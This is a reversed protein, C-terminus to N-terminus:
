MNNRNGHGFISIVYAASSGILIVRQHTYSLLGKMRKKKERRVNTVKKEIEEERYLLKTSVDGWIWGECYPCMKDGQFIFMCKYIETVSM